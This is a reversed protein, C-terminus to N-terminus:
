TTIEKSKRPVTMMTAYRTPSMAMPARADLFILVESSKRTAPLFRPKQVKVSRTTALMQLPMVRRPTLPRPYVVPQGLMQSCINTGSEAATQM